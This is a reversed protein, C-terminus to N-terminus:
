QDRIRIFVNTGPPKGCFTENTGNSFRNSFVTLAFWNTDNLNTKYEPVLTVGNAGTSRLVINNSFSFNVIQIPPPPPPDTFLIRGGFSKHSACWYGINTANTPVDFTIVGMATNNGLVSGPPANTIEFPHIPSNTVAFTYTRGRNLTITPNPGLGNITFAFAGGPTTVSFDAASLANLTLTLLAM